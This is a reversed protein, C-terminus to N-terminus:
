NRDTPPLLVIRGALPIHLQLNFGAGKKNPWAAGVPTFIAKGGERDRVHYAILSPAKGTETAETANTDTM